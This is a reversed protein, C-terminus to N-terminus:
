TVHCSPVPFPHHLKMRSPSQLDGPRPSCPQSLVARQESDGAPIVSPVTPLRAARLRRHGLGAAGRPWPGAFPHLPLLKWLQWTHPSPAASSATGCGEQQLLLARAPGTGMGQGPQRTCSKSPSIFTSLDM